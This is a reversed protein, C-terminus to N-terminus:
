GNVGINLTAFPPLDADDVMGREVLERWSQDLSRMGHRSGARLLATLQARKGDRVLTRVPPTAILIEFAAVRGGGRRPLLTQAVAGELVTALHWSIQGHQDSPFLGVIYELASASDPQRVVAIVLQGTGAATLAAQATEADRLDGVVIVDPNQRLAARLARAFDQSDVGIERQNIVSERHRHLYEVPDELTIVHSAREGNIRDVMAAVTTSKGSGAPGAVVVMGSERLALSAVGEPANLEPLSPIQSSIPRIALSISGRQRFAAVRFRGVGSLSYSFDAEGLRELRERQVPPALHAFAADCDAVTLVPGAERTLAGSVRWM